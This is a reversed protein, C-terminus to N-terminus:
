DGKLRNEGQIESQIMKITRDELETITKKQKQIGAASNAMDTIISKMVVQIEKKKQRLNEIEKELNKNQGCMTKM